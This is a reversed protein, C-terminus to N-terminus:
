IEELILVLGKKDNSKKDCEQCTNLAKKEQESILENKRKKSSMPISANEAKDTTAISEVM